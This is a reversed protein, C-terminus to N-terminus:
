QTIVLWGRTSNSYVLEAWSNDVNLILNAAAGQINEGNRDVTLNNTAWTGGMDVIKVKMGLTPTPPLTVTFAGGSTDGLIQDNNVATYNATKISTTLGGPAAQWASRGDAHTQTWVHGVTGESGDQLYIKGKTGGNLVLKINGGNGTSSHGGSAIYVDGGNNAGNSAFGAALVLNGATVTPSDDGAKIGVHVKDNHTVARISGHVTQGSITDDKSQLQLAINGSGITGGGIVYIGNSGTGHNLIINETANISVYNSSNVQLGRSTLNILGRTGSVSTGTQLNLDGSNGSQTNGTRILVQASFGSGAVDGSRFVAEASSATSSANTVDGSNAHLWGSVGGINAGTINGGILNAQGGFGSTGTNDGAQVYVSGSNGNVANGTRLTTAGSNGTGTANGSVIYTQGTNSNTNATGTSIIIQGSSQTGGTVNGTRLDTQGSAGTVVNGSGFLNYGSNGSGTVGGSGFGATGSNGSGTAQGSTINVSGSLGNVVSGSAVGVSGSNLSGAASGTNAFISGSTGGFSTGTGININGSNNTGGSVNGTFFNGNGSSGTVSQGTTLSSPGSNGSQTGGTSLFADGSNGTGSVFGTYAHLYGSGGNVTNGSAFEINGSAGSGNATGTNLTLQGTSGGASASGSALAVGQTNGTTTTGSRIDVTGSQGTGSHNGSRIFVGGTNGSSSANTKGGSNINVNGTTGSGAQTLVGSAFTVTGTGGSSTSSNNGSNINLNGSSATSISLNISGSTLSVLGSTATAVGANIAGSNLSLNGSNGAAGGIAGTSVSTPGSNAVSMGQTAGSTITMNGSAVGGRVNGSRFFIGGSGGIGTPDQSRISLSGTSGSGFADGSTFFINASSTAGSVNKTRITAFGSDSSLINTSTGIYTRGTNLPSDDGILIGGKAKAGGLYTFGPLQVDNSGGATTAVFSHTVGFGANIAALLQDRTLNGTIRLQLRGGLQSVIIRQISYDGYSTPVNNNTARFATGVAPNVLGGVNSFDGTTGSLIIYSSGNSVSGSSQPALIGVQQISYNGYTPTGSSTATFYSGVAPNNTGAGFSAFNAGSSGSIITYNSGVKLAGSSQAAITEDVIIHISTENASDGITTGSSYNIGQSTVTASTEVTAGADLYVVGSQGSTTSDGSILIISGTDAAREDSTVFTGAIAEFSIGVGSNAANDSTTLQGPVSFDQIGSFNMYGPKRIVFIYNAQDAASPLTGVVNTIVSSGATFDGTFSFTAQKSVFKASRTNNINTLDKGSLDFAGSSEKLELNSAGIRVSLFDVTENASLKRKKTNSETVLLELSAM